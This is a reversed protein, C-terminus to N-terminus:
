KWESSQIEKIFCYAQINENKNEDISPGDLNALQIINDLYSSLILDIGIENTEETTTALVRPMFNIDEIADRISPFSKVSDM